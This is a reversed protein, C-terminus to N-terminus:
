RQQGMTVAVTLRRQNRLVTVSVRTGPRITAVHRPIDRPIKVIEEGITLIVDGRRMGARGAPSGPDVTTIVAGIPEPLGFAKALAPTVEQVAVGLYGRNTVRGKRILEPLLQKVMNVPIAFGIGQGSAVIATNIGIVEGQLNFLPGGSNGPNISADTQIFNDYRGAGIVRGKASVIGATVTQSLGFPNGIALVWEGVRVGESDGLAALPLRDTTKIKVVALDTEPDRGVLTARYKKGSSLRVDIEDAGQIVHYNTVIHGLGDVLFGSGLSQRKQERPVGYFQRFFDQFPDHSGRGMEGFPNWPRVVVQKTTSINVVAPKVREVLSEFGPFDRAHAPLGASVMAVLAVSCATSRARVTIM